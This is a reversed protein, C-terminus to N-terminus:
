GNRRFLLHLFSKPEPPTFRQLTKLSAAHDVHGNGNKVTGNVPAPLGIELDAMVETIHRKDIAPCSEGFANTLANDCLANIVRPIGKSSAAIMHIAEASFPLATKAGARTWRVRMYEDVQPDGLPDINLRVAIRQKLQRMDERNLIGALEPQGALVIQLLKHDATEFNTLLRVEELLEPSLKHAEDIILVAARGESHVRLLFQQFKLLRQAKSPPVQDIGFDLLVMELFESSTLTPNVLYSFQARAGMSGLIRSLLTTKGTGADGTLVLFGKRSTVAFMLGALAERHKTTMFLFSPDPTMAFPFRELGFFKLYM